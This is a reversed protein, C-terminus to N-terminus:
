DIFPYTGPKVGEIRGTVMNVAEAFPSLEETNLQSLTEINLRVLLQRELEDVDVSKGVSQPARVSQRARGIAKALGGDTSSRSYEPSAITQLAKILEVFRSPGEPFDNDKNRRYVDSERIGSPLNFAEAILTIWVVWADWAGGEHITYEGARWLLKSGSEILGTLCIRFISSMKEPLAAVALELEMLIQRDWRDPTESVFRYQESWHHAPYLQARLLEAQAILRKIEYLVDSRKGGIKPANKELPLSLTFALTALSILKRARKPLRKGFAKQIQDWNAGSFVVIYGLQPGPLLRNSKTMHWDSVQPHELLGISVLKDTLAGITRNTRWHDSEIRSLRSM